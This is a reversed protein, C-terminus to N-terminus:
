RRDARRRHAPGTSLAAAAVARCGRRGCWAHVERAEVIRDRAEPSDIRGLHATLVQNKPLAPVDQSTRAQVRSGDDGRWEAARGVARGRGGALVRRVEWFRRVCIRSRRPAHQPSRAPDSELAPLLGSVMSVLLTLSCSSRSSVRIRSSRSGSRGAKSRDKSTGFRLIARWGVRAAAAISGLLLTEFFLQGVVRRARRASRPAFRWSRARSWTRAFVLTAVNSAVVLLVMVLVFVLASM